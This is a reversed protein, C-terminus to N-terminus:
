GPCLRLEPRMSAHYASQGSFIDGVSSRKAVRMEQYEDGATRETEELSLIGPPHRPTQMWLPNM